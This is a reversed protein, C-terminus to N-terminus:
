NRNWAQRLKAMEEPDMRVRRVYELVFAVFVLLFFVTVAVIVVITSRSSGGQERLLPPGMVSVSRSTDAALMSLQHYAVRQESLAQLDTSISGPLARLVMAVDAAQSMQSREITQVITQSIQEEIESAATDLTEAASRFVGGVRETLAVQAVEVLDRAVLLATDSLSSAFSVTVIGSTGDTRVQYRDSDILGQIMSLYQERTQGEAADERHREYVTALIQPDRLVAVFASRIDVDAYQQLDMPLNSVLVRQEAAFTPRETVDVGVMPGVYVVLVTIFTVGLSGLVILRRHRVLVALLDILSIVDDTADSPSTPTQEM